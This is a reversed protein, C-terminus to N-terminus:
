IRYGYIGGFVHIVINGSPTKNHVSGIHPSCAMDHDIEHGTGYAGFVYDAQQRNTDVRAWVTIVGDQMEATLWEAGQPAQVVQPGFITKLPYKFVTVM